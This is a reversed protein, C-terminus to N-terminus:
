LEERSESTDITARDQSSGASLSKLSDEADALEDLRARLREQLDAWIRMVLRGITQRQRPDIVVHFHMMPTATVSLLHLMVQM